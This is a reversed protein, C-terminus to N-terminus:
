TLSRHVCIQAHPCIVRQAFCSGEYSHHPVVGEPYFMLIYAHHPIMRHPTVRQAFKLYVYNDRLRPVVRKEVMYFEDYLDRM